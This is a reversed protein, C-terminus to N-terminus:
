SMAQIDSRCRRTIRSQTGLHPPRAVQVKSCQLCQQYMATCAGHSHAGRTTAFSDVVVTNLCNQVFESCAIFLSQLVQLVHMSVMSAFPEHHGVLASVEYYFAVRDGCSFPLQVMKAALAPDMDHVVHEMKWTLKSDAKGSWFYKGIQPPGSSFAPQYLFHDGEVQMQVLNGHM